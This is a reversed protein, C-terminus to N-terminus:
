YYNNVHINCSRVQISTGMNYKVRCTNDTVEQVVAKHISEPQTPLSVTVEQEPELGMVYYGCGCEIM